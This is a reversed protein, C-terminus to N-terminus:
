RSTEIGSSEMPKPRLQIYKREAQVPLIVRTGVAACVAEVANPLASEEGLVSAGGCVKFYGRARTLKIKKQVVMKQPIDHRSIHHEIGFGHTSVNRQGSVVTTM